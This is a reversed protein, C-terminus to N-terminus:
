TLYTRHFTMFSETTRDCDDEKCDTDRRDTGHIDFDLNLNKYLEIQLKFQKIFRNCEFSILKTPKYIWM